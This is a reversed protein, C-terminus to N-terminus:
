RQKKILTSYRPISTHLKYLRTYLHYFAQSPHLTHAPAFLTRLFHVYKHMCPKGLASIVQACYDSEQANRPRHVCPTNASLCSAYTLACPLKGSTCERKERQACATFPHCCKTNSNKERLKPIFSFNYFLLISVSPCVPM